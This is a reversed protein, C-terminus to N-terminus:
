FDIYKLSAFVLNSNSLPDDSRGQTFSNQKSVLLTQEFISVSTLSLRQVFTSKLKERLPSLVTNM